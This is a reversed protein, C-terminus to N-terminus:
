KLAFLAGALHIVATAVHKLHAKTLGRYRASRLGFGRM